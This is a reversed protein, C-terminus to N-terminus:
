CEYTELARKKYRQPKLCDILDRYLARSRRSKSARWFVWALGSCALLILATVFFGWISHGTENIEQVNMGFVSSATDTLVQDVFYLCM